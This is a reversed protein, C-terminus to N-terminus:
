NNLLLGIAAQVDNNALQLARESEAAGFGMAVLQEVAEPSPPPLHPAVGGGAGAGTGPGAAATAPPRPGPAAAATAGGRRQHGAGAATDQAGPQSPAADGGLLAGLTASFFRAVFGPLQLHISTAMRPLMKHM